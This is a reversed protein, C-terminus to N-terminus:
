FLEDEYDFDDNFDNEPNSFDGGLREGDALKMISNLGVAIGKSGKHNYAYFNVNARAFCGSYVEDKSMVPQMDRGIVPPQTTTKANLFFCNEYEEGDRETDGDRLPTKLGKPVKGGFKSAAGAKTAADIASKVRNLTFEDDKSIILQVSYKPTEGEEMVSPAFVQVYSLRVKGTSIRTESM